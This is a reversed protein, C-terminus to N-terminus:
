SRAGDAEEEIRKRYEPDNAMREFHVRWFEKVEAAWREGSITRKVSGDADLETFRM